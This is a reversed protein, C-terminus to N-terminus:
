KKATKLEKYKFDLMESVQYFIYESFSDKSLNISSLFDKNKRLAKYLIKQDKVDLKVKYLFNALSILAQERNAYSSPDYIEDNVLFREFDEQNYKPQLGLIPNVLLQTSSNMLNVYSGLEYQQAESMKKYDKGFSQIKDDASILLDTEEKIRNIRESLEVSALDYSKKDRKSVLTFIDDLRQKDGKAKWFLVGSGLVASIAITWGVPGAMLLLTNGAIMGGGGTALAGGGLWALAANTAAAGSLTSIATGTSAVGFTTAIGMAATPGLAAVAIGASAGVAGAGGSKVATKKYDTDIQQVQALWDLRIKKLEDIQLQNESPIGRIEDFSTQLVGLAKNIKETEEGLLNIKKNAKEVAKEAHERAITLKMSSKAM